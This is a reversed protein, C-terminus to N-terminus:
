KKPEDPDKEQCQSATDWIWLKSMSGVFLPKKILNAQLYWVVLRCNIALNFVEYLIYTRIIKKIVSSLEHDFNYVVM